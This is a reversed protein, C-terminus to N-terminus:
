GFAAAGSLAVAGNGIARVRGIIPRMRLLGSCRWHNVYDRLIVSKRQAVPTRQEGWFEVFAPDPTRLAPTGGAGKVKKVTAPRM